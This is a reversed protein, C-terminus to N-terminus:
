VLVTNFYICFNAFPDFLHGPRRLPGCLATFFALPICFLALGDTCGSLFLLLWGFIASTTSASFYDFDPPSYFFWCLDM